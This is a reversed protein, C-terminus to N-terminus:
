ETSEDAPGPKGVQRDIWAIRREVWRKLWTVEDEFTDGVYHNCTVHQGLIPWRKFNRQQAEELQAAFQDITAAVKGPDLIDQRLERWRAKTREDFRADERLRGYWSIENPRLNRWYWGSTSHGGYYNANGFARNWDWAPGVKIKGNRDKTLYASYRFGDVNKSLEILWHMDIFAPVDLYAAYGDEPDDFDPGHLAEEFDRLHQSIWARQPQTIRDGKPYVYFYPGGRPTRFRKGGDDSHDRKVIYGGTIEPEANDEPDLKAINVREKGRKIREVLVYVGQYDRMSLPGDGVSLFLEVYRTRPAYQGMQNSLHYALVDRIMTKDEFPAYLIWDEEAPLGLLAVKTQNTSADLTHMSFSKKPLNMSSHGRPNISILGRHAPEKFVAARGDSGPAFFEGQMVVEQHKSRPYDNGRLVIIPLNSTFNTAIERASPRGRRTMQQLHDAQEQRWRDADFQQAFLGSLTGISLVTGVLGLTGGWLALGRGRVLGGGRRVIWVGLLGFLLAMVGMPVALALLPVAKIQSFLFGMCGFVFAVLAAKSLKRNM